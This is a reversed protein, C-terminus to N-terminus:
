RTSTAPQILAEAERRLVHAELWNHFHLGLEQEARAPMGDRYEDLWAQGKRLWRQAEETQGLRQHALALWLWNLVARGPKADVKLSQEFLSVADGYRGARYALAGQETLSWFQKAAAHLEKEALRGPLSADAVADPALTSARALHYARPGGNKGYKEIMDACAKVYGPRDGALLLLAAYEFLFHGNDAQGGQLARAFLEAAQAWDRRAACARGQELPDAARLAAVDAWLRLWGEREADSLKELAAQDRVSSLAADTQWIALNGGALKGGGQMASRLALDARLWALAQQRLSAREPGGLPAGNYGEGAAARVAAGAAYYRDGTKLNDALAPQAAFAAAYLSFATHPRGHRCARALELREALPLQEKAQLLGPLRADLALMRECMKLKEQLAPRGPEGSPLLDLGRRVAACAEEVRGTRILADVLGLHAISRRPDLESARRYEAIAEDLKGKIQWCMGLNNHPPASKPDLESARRYSAMAKDLDGRAQWCTGLGHHAAVSKPDLELACHYSATAKDLEGKAQWCMGLTTHPAAYKPGLESARRYSAMAKDLEGRAQWCQGLGHHAPVSKPDLELARHYSAMAKDLEGRAQWCMGLNNHPAAYKPSIESARRYSAMAKDLEGRAQWCMGLGHHHRAATPELEIAKRVSRISEDMQGLRLLALGVELHAAAVTPRTALAARYFGVAEAPKGERLAEGLAYNLWFDEPHQGQATRLLPEAQNDKQGLKKALLTVLPTPPGNDPADKALHEQAEAALRELAEQNRWLERDRFRDGWVPDPDARRALDLLRAMAQRDKLADAVYAWHDLAMVLQPRLESDRIQVAVTEEDGWVDLGANMFAQAYAEAMSPYDFRNGDIAPTLRIRELAAGLRLGAEARALRRGLDDSDAEGLRSRAQTLVAEAEPWRGQVRLGPVQALATEVAERARGRRDAWQRELWLGSGATLFVVALLTALLASAAPKRRCWRWSREAWGVPRAHIPWGEGFRSLDDALARASAYRRQPEKHLCKLCITELDRPVGGHLRSPPVPDRTIVAQMTAAATEGTFPPRGTLLEYLIAGLAYVDLAPGIARTQGLAQEPAMYSPTGMPVGSHTLGAGGELRRALGFDSIKAVGDATLLVNAPKLDRHIIGCTHAAQVAGALTAVLRAAPGAPQPAGALKQALSGGEVFEMTFYPRGAHDGVDHVRVINEHRLGAVAEAERQFREREAPGAYTGCLLMKVAVPRNLRLHRAQYVVGMGGFGLVAEVQYGPIQPLEGAPSSPVVTDAARNSEPTPFLAQLEAEVVRLKQEWRQRVEALLEPCEACVEEPTRESELLDLVLQQVRTEDSM